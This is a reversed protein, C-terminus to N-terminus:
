DLRVWREALARQEEASLSNGMLLLCHEPGRGRAELKTSIIMFGFPCERAGRAAKKTNYSADRMATRQAAGGGALLCVM